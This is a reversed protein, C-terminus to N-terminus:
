ASSQHLDHKREANKRVGVCPHRRVKDHSAGTGSRRLDLEADGHGSNRMAATLGRAKRQRWRVLGIVGAITSALLVGCLVIIM